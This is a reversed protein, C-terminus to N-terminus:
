NRIGAPALPAEVPAVHVPRWAVHIAIAHSLAVALWCPLHLQEATNQELRLCSDPPDLGGSTCIPLYDRQRTM